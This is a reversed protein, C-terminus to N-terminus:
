FQKQQSLDSYQPQQQMQIHQQQLQQHYLQQEYLQQKQLQEQQLQQQQVQEAEKQLQSQLQQQSIPLAEMKKFLSDRNKKVMELIDKLIENLQTTRTYFRLLKRKLPQNVDYLEEILAGMEPDVYDSTIYFQLLKFLGFLLPYMTKEHYKKLGKLAYYYCNKKGMIRKHKDEGHAVVNCIMWLAEIKVCVDIDGKLMLNVSDVIGPASVLRDIQNPLGAAVNSFIYCAEKKINVKEKDDLLYSSIKELLNHNLFEETIEDSQCSVINGITRLLPNRFAKELVPDKFIAVIVSFLNEFKVFAKIAEDSISTIFACAWLNDNIIERNPQTILSELLYPFCPRIKEFNPPPRFRCLNNVAWAITQKTQLSLTTKHKNYIDLTIGMGNQELVSDRIEPSEGALNSVGWLAQGFVDESPDQCFELFFAVGKMNVVYMTEDSSGSALNTLIWLIDLKIKETLSKGIHYEMLLPIVGSKIFLNLPPNEEQSSAKRMNVIAKEQDTKKGSILLYKWENFQELTYQQASM